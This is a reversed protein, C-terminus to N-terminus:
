AARGRTLKMVLEAADHRATLADIRPLMTERQRKGARNYARKLEELEAVERETLPTPDILDKHLDVTRTGSAGRSAGTITAQMGHAGGAGRTRVIRVAVKRGDQEILAYSGPQPFPTPANLM